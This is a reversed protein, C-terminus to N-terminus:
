FFDYTIEWYSFSEKPLNSCNLKVKLFHEIITEESQKYNYFYSNSM